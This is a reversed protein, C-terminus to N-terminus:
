LSTIIISIGDWTVQTEMLQEITQEPSWLFYSLEAHDAKTLPFGGTVPPNGDSLALLASFTEM